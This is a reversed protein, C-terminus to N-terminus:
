SPNPNAIEASWTTVVRELFRRTLSSRRARETIDTAASFEDLTDDPEASLTILASRLDGDCRDLAMAAAAARVEERWGEWDLEALTGADVDDLIKRLKRRSWRGVSRELSRAFDADDLELDEDLTLAVLRRMAAAIEDTDLNEFGPATLEAEAGRM